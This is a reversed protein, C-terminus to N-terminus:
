LYTIVQFTNYKMKWNWFRLQHKLLQCENFNYCSSRSFMQSVKLSNEIRHCLLQTSISTSLFFSNSKYPKTQWHSFNFYSLIRISNPSITKYSTKFISFNIPLTKFFQNPCHFTLFQSLNPKLTGLFSNKLQLCPVKSHCDKKFLYNPLHLNQCSIRKNISVNFNPLIFFHNKTVKCWWVSVQGLIQWNYM